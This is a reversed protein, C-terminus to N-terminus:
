SASVLVLQVSVGHLETNGFTRNHCAIKLCPRSDTSSGDGGMWSAMFVVVGDFGDVALM